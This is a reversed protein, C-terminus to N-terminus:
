RGALWDATVAATRKEAFLEGPMHRVSRRLERGLRGMVLVRRPWRVAIVEEIALVRLELSEALSDTNQLDYNMSARLQALEERNM